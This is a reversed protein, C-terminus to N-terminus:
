NTPLNITERQLKQLIIGMKEYVEAFVPLEKGTYIFFLALSLNREKLHQQLPLKQLRYAERLIRKVRNRQVAKKFNRSSTTVGTQLVIVSNERFAYLVKVPSASISKGKSFM